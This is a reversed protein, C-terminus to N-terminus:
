GRGGSGTKDRGLSDTVLNWASFPVTRDGLRAEFEWKLQGQTVWWSVKHGSLDTLASSERDEMRVTERSGPIQCTMVKDM